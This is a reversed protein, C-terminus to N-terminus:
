RRGSRGRPPVPATPSAADGRIRRHDSAAASRRAIHPRRPSPRVPPGFPHSPGGGGPPVARWRRRFEIPPGTSSTRIPRRRPPLPDRRLGSRVRSRYVLTLAEAGHWQVSVVSVTADPLIGRVTAGSTLDELRM